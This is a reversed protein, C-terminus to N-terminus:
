GAPFVVQVEPVAPGPGIHFERQPHREIVVAEAALQEAVADLIWEVPERANGIPEHALMEIQVEGPVFAALAHHLRRDILNQRPELRDAIMAQVHNISGLQMVDSRAHGGRGARFGNLDRALGYTSLRQSRTDKHYINRLRPSVVLAGPAWLTCFLAAVDKTNM